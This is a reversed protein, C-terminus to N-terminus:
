FRISPIEGWRSIELNDDESKGNPVSEDLINPIGEMLATMKAQIESLETEAAKLEDGLHQVQDLLPQM